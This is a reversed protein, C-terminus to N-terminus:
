LVDSMFTYSKNMHINSKYLKISSHADVVPFIHFLMDDWLSIRSIIMAWDLPLLRLLFFSGSTAYCHAKISNNILCEIPFVYFHVRKMAAM